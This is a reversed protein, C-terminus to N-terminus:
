LDLPCGNRLVWVLLEKNGSERAFERAAAHTSESWPCDMERLWQIVNLHGSRAACECTQEDWLVGEAGSLRNEFLWELIKLHGRSVALYYANKGWLSTIGNRTKIKLLWQLVELQGNMVAADCVGTCWTNIHESRYDFLLQLAVLNGERAACLYIENEYIVRDEFVRINNFVWKLMEMDGNTIAYAYVRNDWPCGNVRAWKLVKLNGEMAASACTFNNWPCGNAKLWQLMEIGRGEDKCSAASSCTYENLRGGKEYAARLLEFNGEEALVGCVRDKGFRQIYIEVDCAPDM